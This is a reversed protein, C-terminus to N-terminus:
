APMRAIPRALAAVVHPPWSPHPPAGDPMCAAQPFEFVRDPDYKLKVAALAEFAEGFYNSRWDPLDASPFNQYVRHNWFPAMTACWDRQFALEPERQAPDTWMVDLWINFTADRHIYANEARDVANIAGGQCELYLVALKNTAGLGSALITRWEAADLDRSVFRAARAIPPVASGRFLMNPLFDPSAGPLALLPALAAECEADTGAYHADLVLWPQPPGSGTAPNSWLVLGTLNLGLANSGRTFDRQIALMVAAARDVDEPTALPWGATREAVGALRLLRYSVSLLVGFQGGTGGRVAWFLDANRTADAPVITGDALMMRLSTVFDCNMGQSRSTLGAGGGQMFGAVRVDPWDGLPLYLGVKQLAPYFTSFPCGAGVTATMAAQDIAIGDLAAVDIVLGSGASYGAFSHGGTRVRFPMDFQRAVSLAHAIDAENACLAIAKPHPDFRANWLHRAADYGADGPVLVQGTMGARLALVAPDAPAAATAAPPTAPPGGPAYLLRHPM